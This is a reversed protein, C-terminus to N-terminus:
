AVWIAGLSKNETAYNNCSVFLHMLLNRGFLPQSTPICVVLCYCLLHETYELSVACNPFFEQQYGETISGAPSLGLHQLCNKFYCYIFELTGSAITTFEYEVLLLIYKPFYFSQILFLVFCLLVLFCLM